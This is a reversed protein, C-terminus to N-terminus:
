AKNRRGGVQPLSRPSLAAQVQGRQLLAQHVSMRGAARDGVRCGSSSRQWVGPNEQLERTLRVHARAHGASDGGGM